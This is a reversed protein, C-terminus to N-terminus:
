LIRAFLVIMSIFFIKPIALEGARCSGNLVPIPGYSIDVEEFSYLPWYLLSEYAEGSPFKLLQCASM